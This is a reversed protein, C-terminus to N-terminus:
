AEVWFDTAVTERSKWCGSVELWWGSKGGARMGLGAEGEFVLLDM